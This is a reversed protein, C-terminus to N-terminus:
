FRFNDFRSSMKKFQKKAFMATIFQILFGLASCGFLLWVIWDAIIIGTNAKVIVAAIGVVLLIISLM